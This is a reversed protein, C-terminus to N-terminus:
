TYINGLNAKPGGHIPQDGTRHAKYAQLFEYFGQPWNVLGKCATAYLCYNIYPVQKQKGQEPFFDLPSEGIQHLYSWKANGPTMIVQRLGDIVRYLIQPLRDPVLDVRDQPTIKDMLWSQILHQSFLGFEDKDLFQTEAEKLNAGCTSCQSVVVDNVSIKEGCIHCSTILLCKHELCASVALSTWILRHYPAKKLCIPCFQASQVPRLQKSAIGRALLPMSTSDLLKISNITREPPIIIQAFKHPTATYLDFISIDTLMTISIYTETRYPYDLRDRTLGRSRTEAQVHKMLLTLPEYHNVQALRILLSALSEGPLLRRRRLLKM